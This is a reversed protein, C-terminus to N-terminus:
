RRKAMIKECSARMQPDMKSLLLQQDEFTLADLEAKIVALCADRKAAALQSKRISHHIIKGLREAEAMKSPMSSEGSGFQMIAHDAILRFPQRYPYQPSQLFNNVKKCHTIYDCRALDYPLPAPPRLAGELAVTNWLHNRALVNFWHPGEKQKKKWAM